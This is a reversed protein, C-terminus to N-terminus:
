RVGYIFTRLNTITSVTGGAVLTFQGFLAKYASTVPAENIRAVGTNTIVNSGNEGLLLQAGGAASLAQTSAQGVTVGTGPHPTLSDYYYMSLTVSGGGTIGGLYMCCIISRYPRFDFIGLSSPTTGVSGDSGAYTGANVQTVTWDTKAFLQDCASFNPSAFNAFTAAM